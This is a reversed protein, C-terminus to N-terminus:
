AAAVASAVASASGSGASCGPPSLGPRLRGAPRLAARTVLRPTTLSAPSPSPRRTPHRPAASCMSCPAVAPAVEPAAAILKRLRRAAAGIQSPTVDVHARAAAVLGRAEDGRQSVSLIVALSPGQVGTAVLGPNAALITELRDITGREIAANAQELAQDADGALGFAAEKDLQDILALLAARQVGVADGAAALIRRAEPDTRIWPNGQLYARSEQWTTTAVWERLGRREPSEGSSRTTATFCRGGRSRACRPSSAWLGCIM